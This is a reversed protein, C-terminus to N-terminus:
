RASLKQLDLTLVSGREYAVVGEDRLRTMIVTTHPRTMATLDALEAHSVTLTVRGREAKAGRHARHKSLDLLTQELRRRGDRITLIRARSEASSVKFCLTELLKATFGPQSRLLSEIDSSRAQTLRSASIVRATTGLPYNRYSCFCLEGFMQGAQVTEVAPKDGDALFETIQVCGSELLYVRHETDDAMWLVSDPKHLKRKGWQSEGPLRAALSSSLLTCQEHDLFEPM